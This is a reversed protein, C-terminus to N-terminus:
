LNGVTDREHKDGKHNHLEPDHGPIYIYSYIYKVGNAIRGLYQCYNPTMHSLHFGKHKNENDARNTCHTTAM